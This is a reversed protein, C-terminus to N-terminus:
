QWTFVDYWWNDRWDNWFGAEGCCSEVTLLAHGRNAQTSDSPFSVSLPASDQMSLLYSEKVTPQWIATVLSADCNQTHSIRKDSIDGISVLSKKGPADSM